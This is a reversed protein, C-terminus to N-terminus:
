WLFLSGVSMVTAMQWSTLSCTNATGVTHWARIHSPHSIYTWMLCARKAWFDGVRLCNSKLSQPVQQLHRPAGSFVRQLQVPQRLRHFKRPSFDMSKFYIHLMYISHSPSFCNFHTPNHFGSHPWLFPVLSLFLNGPTLPRLGFGAKRRKKYIFAKILVAM